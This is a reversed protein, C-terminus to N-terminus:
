PCLCRWGEHPVRSMATGGAQKPLIQHPVKTYEKIDKKCFRCQTTGPETHDVMRQVHAEKYAKCPDVGLGRLMDVTQDHSQQLHAKLGTLVAPEPKPHAPDAPAPAPQPANALVQDPFHCRPVYECTELTTFPPMRGPSIMDQHVCVWGLAPHGMWICYLDYKCAPVYHHGKCHCLVMNSDKIDRRHRLRVRTFGEVNIVLELRSVCQFLVCTSNM